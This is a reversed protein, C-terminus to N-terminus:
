LHKKPEFYLTYLGKVTGTAPKRENGKQLFIERVKKLMERRNYLEHDDSIKRSDILVDINYGKELSRMAIRLRHKLDHETINWNIHIIKKSNQHERQKMKKSYNKLNETKSTINKLYSGNDCVLDCKSMNWNNNIDRSLISVYSREYQDIRKNKKLSIIREYTYTKVLIIKDVRYDLIM